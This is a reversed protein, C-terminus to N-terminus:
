ELSQAAAAIFERLRQDSLYAEREPSLGPAYTQIQGNPQIGTGIPPQADGRYGASSQVDVTFRYVSMGSHEVISRFYMLAPIVHNFWDESAPQAGLRPYRWSSGGIHEWGLRLFSVQIRTRDNPDQISNTEIDFSVTIPM